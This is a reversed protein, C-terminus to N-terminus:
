QFAYSLGISVRSQDRFQGFVGERAGYYRDIQSILTINSRYRYNASINWYGDADNLSHVLLGELSFTQNYFDRKVLFSVQQEQKDRVYAHSEGAIHSLFWQASLLTDSIGNYDLGIVGKFERTASQELTAPSTSPVGLPVTDSLYGLESRVTVSGFAKAVTAGLLHTRVYGTRIHLVDDGTFQAVARGNNIQNLYGLGVDWGSVFGTLRMGYDSDQWFRDPKEQREFLVQQNGTLLPTLKTSRVQYSAGAEPYAHYTQDPIWLLQMTWDRVPFEVNATWLPIRRDELDDSIFERYRLPNVVDLVQLGDAQGWVVQQKGLRIFVDEIYGDVYFERLELETKSDILWRRNLKDSSDQTPRYPELNDTSEYRLVTESYFRFGNDFSSEIEVGLRNDFNQLRSSYNETNDVVYSAQTDFIGRIDIEAFSM